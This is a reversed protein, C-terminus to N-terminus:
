QQDIYKWIQSGTNYIRYYNHRHMCEVETENSLIMNMKQLKSKQWNLRNSRIGNIVWFYNPITDHIYMFNLQNYLNGTGHDLNCYSILENYEYNNIFHKFLKSAGGIVTTNLKNCFRLLEFKNHREGFTMVSVLENEYYLGWNISSICKGQIHNNNLFLNLEINNVDKIICKRAYIKKSKDLKNLIISKVINQKYIWDDEWIHILQIGQQKCLNTKNLHYNKDKYYESHWYLGNFEIALKLEPLYIDLEHPNIISRTNTIIKGNYNEEIFKKIEIESNSYYKLVPNCNTCVNFNHKQRQQAFHQSVTFETNCKLCKLDTLYRNNKNYLNIIDINPITSLISYRKIKNKEINLKTMNQSIKTKVIDRQSNYKKGYNSLMTNEKQKKISELQSINNVGYKEKITINKKIQGQKKSEIINTACKKNGCTKLYGINFNKYSANNNCVICKPKDIDNIILFILESLKDYEINNDLSYQIIQDYINKYNKIWFKDTLQNSIKKGSQIYPNLINQIELKLM